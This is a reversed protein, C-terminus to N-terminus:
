SFLSKDFCEVLCDIFIIVVASYRGVVESILRSEAYMEIHMEWTLLRTKLRIVIILLVAVLIGVVSKPCSCLLTVAHIQLTM